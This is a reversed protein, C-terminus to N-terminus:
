PGEELISAPERVVTFADVVLGAEVADAGDGLAVARVDHRRPGLEVERPLDRRRGGDKARAPEHEEVWVRIVEVEDPKTRV